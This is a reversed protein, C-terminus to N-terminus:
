AKSYDIVASNIPIGSKDVLWGVAAKIGNVFKSHNNGMGDVRCACNGSGILFRAPGDVPAGVVSTVPTFIVQGSTDHPIPTNYVVLEGTSKKEDVDMEYWGLLRANAMLESAM